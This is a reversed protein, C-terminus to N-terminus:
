ELAAKAQESLEQPVVVEVAVMLAGHTGDRKRVGRAPVRFVQGNQTGPPIRVTVPPGRHTPVQIEAGAGPRALASPCRSWLIDGSRGFVLHPTVRIRIYLDGNAGGHEGPAGKGPIRIRQGDAVGAPIRVQIARPSM